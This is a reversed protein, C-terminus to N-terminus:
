RILLADLREEMLTGYLPGEGLHIWILARGARRFLEVAEGTGGPGRALEGNWIAMLLNCRVALLQNAERYALPRPLNSAPPLVAVAQQRLAHYESLSEDTEFDKLYEPEALPLVVILDAPLSQVLRRSLLRDAGEALCSYVQYFWGPCATRIREVAKQIAPELSATETLCRHGTVAIRLCAGTM